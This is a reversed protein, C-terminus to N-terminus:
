WIALWYVNANTSPSTKVRITFGSKTVNEVWVGTDYGATVTISVPASDWTRQIVVHDAGAPVVATDRFSSNGLIKGTGKSLDINGLAIFNGALNIDGTITVDNLTTEQSLDSKTVSSVLDSRTLTAQNQLLTVDGELISLRTALDASPTAALTNNINVSNNLFVLITDKGSTPSWDELAKGFTYGDSTAKMARGPETSSTLMDGAKIEASSTAIKVPVRGNLAVAVANDSWELVEKGMTQFAKTSVVGVLKQDYEKDAKVVTFASVTAGIPEGITVVDGASPLASPVLSQPSTPYLEALDAAAGDCDTLKYLTQGDKSATAWCVASTNATTLAGLYLNGANDVVMKTAGSASATMIDQTQNQNVILASLGDNVATNNVTMQGSVSASKNVVFSEADIIVSGKQYSGLTLPSSNFVEGAYINLPASSRITSLTANSFNLDYAIGVDGTATFSTPITATIGTQSISFDSSGNDKVNFLNGASAYQGANISFLDGTGYITTSGTPSWDLSLLSGTTLATSTSNFLGLNGTTMATDSINLTDNLNTPSLTTGTRTWYGLAGTGTPSVWTMAGAGNNTLVSNVGGQVSPFSTTLNNLKIINGNTDVQFQSSAGVSLPSTPTTDSIGVNGGSVVTLLGSTLQSATLLGSVTAAYNVQLAQADVVV